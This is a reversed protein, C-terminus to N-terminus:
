KHIPRGFADVEFVNGFKTAQNIIIKSHSDKSVLKGVRIDAERFVSALIQKQGTIYRGYDYTVFIRGDALQTFNPYTVNQREDLLLKYKWSRGEDDSLWATLRERQHSKLSDNYVLLYSGSALRTMSARTAPGAFGSLPEADTWTVGEDHSTSNYLGKKTRIVMWLSNDWLGFDKRPAITAESFDRIREPVSTGGQWNWSKGEDKSILTGTEKGAIKPLWSPNGIVFFPALWDGRGQIIPKGFLIGGEAVLVPASWTPNPSDPNDTRIAYCGYQTTEGVSTTAQQFFVWLRGKPDLWPLPDFVRVGPASQIVVKPGSWTQGQDGSTSLLAYNGVGEGRGGSYWTVWLRGKPSHEIGPIGQWYRTPAIYQASPTVIIKPFSIENAYVHRCLMTLLIFFPLFLRM